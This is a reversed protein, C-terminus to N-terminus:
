EDAPAGRVTGSVEFDLLVAGTQIQGEVFAMLSPALSRILEVAQESGRRLTEPDDDPSGSAGEFRFCFINEGRSGRVLRLELDTLGSLLHSRLAKTTKM